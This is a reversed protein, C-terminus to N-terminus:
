KIDSLTNLTADALKQASLTEKNENLNSMLLAYIWESDTNGQVQLSFQDDCM